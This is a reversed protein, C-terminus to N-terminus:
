MMGPWCPAAQSARVRVQTPSDNYLMLASVMEPLAHPTEELRPAFALLLRRALEREQQGGDPAPSKDAYVALRLLNHCSVSNGAPEASDQDSCINNWIYVHMWAYYLLLALVLSKKDAM